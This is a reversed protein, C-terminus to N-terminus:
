RDCLVVGDPTEYTPDVNGLAPTCPLPSLLADIEASLDDDSLHETTRVVVRLYDRRYGDGPNEAAEIILQWAGQNNRPTILYGTQFVDFDGLEPESTATLAYSSSPGALMDALAQLRAFELVGWITYTPGDGVFAHTYPQDDPNGTWDTRSIVQILNPCNCEGHEIGDPWPPDDELDDIPPAAVECATLALLAVLAVAINARHTHHRRARAIFTVIPTVPDRTSHEIVEVYTAMADSNGM